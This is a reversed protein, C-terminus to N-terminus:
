PQYIARFIARRTQYEQWVESRSGTNTQFYMSDLQDRLVSGPVLMASLDQHVRDASANKVVAAYMFQFDVFRAHPIMTKIGVLDQDTDGMKALCNLSGESLMPMVRSKATVMWDIEGSLLGTMVRGGTSYPVPRISAGINANIDTVVNTWFDHPFPFGLTRAKRFSDFDATRDGRTCFVQAQSSVYVINDQTIPVGCHHKGLERSLWHDAYFVFLLNKGQFKDYIDVAKKCNGARIVDVHDYSKKLESIMTDIFAHAVSGPSEGQLVTIRSEALLPGFMLAAVAAVFTKIM